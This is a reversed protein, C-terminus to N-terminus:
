GITDKGTSLNRPRGIERNWPCQWPVVGKELHEIILNTVQEYPDPRPPKGSEAQPKQSARQTKLTSM